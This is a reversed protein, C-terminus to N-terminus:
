LKIDEILELTDKDFFSRIKLAMNREGLLFSTMYPDAVPIPDYYPTLHLIFSIARRGAPSGAMSRLASINIDDEAVQGQKKEM